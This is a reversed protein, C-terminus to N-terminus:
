INRIRVPANTAIGPIAAFRRVIPNPASKKKTIRAVGTTRVPKMSHSVSANKKAVGTAAIM